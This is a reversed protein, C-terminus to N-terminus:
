IFIIVFFISDILAALLLLSAVSPTPTFRGLFFAFGFLGSPVLNIFKVHSSSLSLQIRSWFSNHMAWLVDSPFDFTPYKTLGTSAWNLQPLLLIFTSKLHSTQEWTNEDVKFWTVLPRHHLMHEAWHFCQPASVHVNQKSREM